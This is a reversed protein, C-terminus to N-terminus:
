KTAKNKDAVVGDRNTHAIALALMARNYRNAYDNAEQYSSLASAENMSAPSLTALREVKAGLARQADDGFLGPLSCAAECIEFYHEGSSRFADQAADEPSKAPKPITTCSVSGIMVFVGFTLCAVLPRYNMFRM